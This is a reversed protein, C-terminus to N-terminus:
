CETTQSTGMWWQVFVDIWITLCRWPIIVFCAMYLYKNINFITELM